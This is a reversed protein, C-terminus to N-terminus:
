RGRFELVTRGITIRDGEQLLREDVTAENVMTGNTSGLDIIVYSGDERRIEAHRRSAGPDSLVVDCDSLRGVTVVPKSLPYTQVPRGDKLLVLEGLPAPMGTEAGRESEPGAGRGARSGAGRGPARGPRGGPRQRAAKTEGTLPRDPGEVLQAECRFEGKGLSEDTDFEVHPPGVLRWGREQAGQRVLQRLEGALAGEAQGFRARDEPALWFAYHNPVWVENVGVTQGAEMDRLLRKALEVPQVGSRFAKAFFGEVLGELRHEFDRLLPM